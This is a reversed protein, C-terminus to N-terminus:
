GPLSHPPTQAIQLERLKHRNEFKISPCQLSPPSLHCAASQADCTNSLLLKVLKYVSLHQWKRCTHSSVRTTIQKECTSKTYKSLSCVRKKLTPSIFDKFLPVLIMPVLNNSLLMIIPGSPQNLRILYQIM